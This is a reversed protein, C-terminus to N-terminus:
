NMNLDLVFAKSKQVQLNLEISGIKVLFSNAFMFCMLLVVVVEYRLYLM